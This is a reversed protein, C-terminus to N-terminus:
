FLFILVATEGSFLKLVIKAFWSYTDSFDSDMGYVIRPILTEDMGLTTHFIAM